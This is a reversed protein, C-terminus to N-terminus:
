KAGFILVVTKDSIESFLIKGCNKEDYDGPCMPSGDCKQHGYLCILASNVDCTFEDVECTGILLVLCFDGFRSNHYIM